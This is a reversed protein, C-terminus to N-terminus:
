RTTYNEIPSPQIGDKLGMFQIETLINPWIVLHALCMFKDADAAYQNIIEISISSYATYNNKLVLQVM